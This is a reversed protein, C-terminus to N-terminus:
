PLLAQSLIQVLEELSREAQRGGAPFAASIAKVPSFIIAALSENSYRRLLGREKMCDFLEFTRCVDKYELAALGPCHACQEVFRYIELNERIYAYYGWVLASVLEGGDMEAGVRGMLYEYTDNAYERYISYLMQEKNEYYIYLTAPSVGAARAIKAISTGAFGEELILKIVAEKVRQEKELDKRRM